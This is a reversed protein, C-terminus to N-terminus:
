FGVAFIALILCSMAAILCAAERMNNRQWEAVTESQQQEWTKTETKMTKTEKAEMITNYHIDEMIDLGM